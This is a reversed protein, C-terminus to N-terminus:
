RAAPRLLRASGSRQQLEETRGRRRRARANPRGGDLAAMRRGPGGPRWARRRTRQRRGGGKNRGEPFRSLFRATGRVGDRVPTWVGGPRRSRGDGVGGPIELLHRRTVCFLRWPGTCKFHGMRQWHTVGTPLSGTALRLDARCRAAFRRRSSARRSAAVGRQGTQLAFIRDTMVPRCTVHPASRHRCSRRRRIVRAGRCGASRGRRSAWPPLSLISAPVAAELLGRRIPACRFAAAGPGAGACWCPGRSRSTVARPRGPQSGIRAADPSAPETLKSRRQGGPKVAGRKRVLRLGTYVM